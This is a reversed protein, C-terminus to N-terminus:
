PRTVSECESTRDAVDVFAEDPGSGCIVLDQGDDGWLVDARPGGGVRDNGDGGHIEDKGYVGVLKDNGAGGWLEDRGRGTRIWDDGEGGWARDGNQAGNVFDDGAGTRVVDHGADALVWMRFRNPLTSGDISDDGLRPWIEVYVTTGDFKSPITCEAAIGEPVSRRTCNDPIDRLEATGRDAFRLKGDVQTVTLDSNQQGAIYRLGGDTNTIMAANKLPIAPGFQGYLAMPPHYEAQATSSQATSSMALAAAAAALVLFLRSPTRLVADGQPIM